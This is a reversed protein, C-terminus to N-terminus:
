GIRMLNWKNKEVKWYKCKTGLKVSQRWLTRALKKEDDNNDDFFYYTKEFRNCYDTNVISGKLVILTKFSEMSLQKKSIIITELQSSDRDLVTHPIFSEEKFSWLFDDFFSTVEDDPCLILVKIGQKFLKEILIASDKFFDRSTINYFFIEKM